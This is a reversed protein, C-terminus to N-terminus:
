KIGKLYDVLKEVARGRHSIRNKDGAEMEAFSRNYGEPM